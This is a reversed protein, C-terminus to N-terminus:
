AGAAELAATSHELALRGYLVVADVYGVESPDAGQSVVEQRLAEVRDSQNSAKTAKAKTSRVTRQVQARVQDVTAFRGPMLAEGGDDTQVKVLALKPFPLPLELQIDDNLDPDVLTKEIERKLSSVDRRVLLSLLFAPDQMQAGYKDRYAGELAAEYNVHNNENLASGEDIAQIALSRIESNASM